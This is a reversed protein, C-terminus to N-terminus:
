QVIMKGTEGAASHGPVDCYFEYNGPKNPANFMISKTDGPKVGVTVWGLGLAPNKLKFVHTKDDVSTVSLTVSQGRTVSFAAPTIRNNGMQLKIENTSAKSVTIMNGTVNFGDVYTNPPTSIGSIFLDSAGSASPSIDTVVTFTKSTNQPIVLQPSFVVIPVNGGLLKTSLNKPGGILATGDLLKLNIFNKEASVYNSSIQIANVEADGNYATLKFKLGVVGTQGPYVTSAPPNDPALTVKLHSRATAETITFRESVDGADDDTMIRIRYDNAPPINDPVRWYFSTATPPLESAIRAVTKVSWGGATTDTPKVLDIYLPRSINISGWIIRYSRSIQWVEGSRPSLIQISPKNTSFPQKVIGFIGSKAIVKNISSDYLDIYYNGPQVSITPSGSGCDLLFTSKANWHFQNGSFASTIFGVVSGNPKVLRLSVWCGNNGRPSVYASSLQITHTAGMIWEKSRLPFIFKISSQNSPSSIISFYDSIGVNDSNDIDRVYVNYQNGPEITKVGGAGMGSYCSVKNLVFTYKGSAANISIPKGRSGPIIGTLYCSEPARNDVLEIAVRKVGKTASWLITYTKGIQWIEGGNPSLIKISSQNSGSSLSVFPGKEIKYILYKGKFVSVYYDNDRYGINGQGTYAQYIRATVKYSGVADYLQAKIIKFSSIHPNSTGAFEVPDITSILQPTLFPKAEQFNRNKKANLFGVMTKIVLQNVNNNNEVNCKPYFKNVLSRLSSITASDLKGSTPLNNKAQFNKVAKETLPGFYGTILGEPYYGGKNLVTQLLYVSKIQSGRSLNPLQCSVSPTGPLEELVISARQAPYSPIFAGPGSYNQDDQSEFDELESETELNDSENEVKRISNQSFGVQSMLAQLQQQLAEIQAQIQRLSSAINALFPSSEARAPLYSLGMTGIALIAVITITILKKNM